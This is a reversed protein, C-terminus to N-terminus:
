WRFLKKREIEPLKAIKESALKVSKIIQIYGTCRCINGSLFNVIEEESPNPNRKLLAYTAMIMGSTCFGCQFGFGEWFAEQIPHLKGEVALGEVTLIESNNVSVALLNCSKVLKGNMIISCSGCVGVACGVNISNIGIEYKLFDSLLMRPEIDREYKVGNVIVSIKVMGRV